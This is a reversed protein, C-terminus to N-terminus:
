SQCAPMTCLPKAHSACPSASFSPRPPSQHVPPRTDGRQSTGAASPPPVCLPGPLAIRRRAPVSATRLRWAPLRQRPLLVRWFSTCRETSPGPALLFVWGAPCPEGAHAPSPAPQLLPDEQEAGTNPANGPALVLARRQAAPGGHQQPLFPFPSARTSAAPSGARGSAQIQPVPTPTPDLAAAPDQRM